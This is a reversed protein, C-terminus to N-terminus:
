EWFVRRSGRGKKAKKVEKKAEREAAKRERKERRVRDRHREEPLEFGRKQVSWVYALNGPHKVATFAGSVLARALWDEGSEGRLPGPAGSEILRKTAYKWGRTGARIKSLMQPDLARGHIDLLQTRAESRGLRAGEFAKYITGIHGPTVVEGLWNVRPVPDSFALVMQIGPIGHRGRLIKFARSLFWTEANYGVGKEDGKEGLLVFRGLEVGSVGPGVYSNITKPNGQSFVAAGKLNGRPDFMGVRVRDAVYTGSYHHGVVFGKAERLPIPEVYFGTPDFMERDSPRVWVERKKHWRQEPQNRPKKAM